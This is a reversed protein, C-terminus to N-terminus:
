QGDTQAHAVVVPAGDGETLTAVRSCRQAVLNDSDPASCVGAHALVRANPLGRTATAKPRM